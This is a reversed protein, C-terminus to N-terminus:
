FLVRWFMLSQSLIAENVTNMNALVTNQNTSNVVINPLNIPAQKPECHKNLIDMFYELSKHTQVQPM